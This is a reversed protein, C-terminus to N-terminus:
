KYSLESKKRKKNEYMLNDAEDIYKDIIEGSKPRVIKYGYSMDVLFEQGLEENAAALNEKLRECFADAEVASYGQAYVVYEDGGFRACVEDRLCSKRLVDAATKIAIDGKDHGYKDNIKKLGDLDAFLIMLETGYEISESFKEGTYRAFGFRNYLGTLPDVVYMDDLQVLMSRLHARKRLSELADSINILWTSYLPSSYAFNCNKTITYGMCRDRFHIPSFIYVNSQEPDQEESWPHMQSSPFTDYEVDEGKEYAMIVKLTEPYGRTIYDDSFTKVAFGESVTRLNDVLASDLCMYFGEADLEQVYRYLHTRFESYSKIEGLDEIMANCEYLYREYHQVLELYKNRISSLRIVETNHCGCSESIIPVAAFLEKMPTKEKRLICLLKRCSQVGVNHQDRDVTTLRPVANQAEFMNDFGSLAVDEPIRVGNKLFMSRVGLAISDTACIVAQPLAEGEEDRRRLMERADDEGAFQTFPGKFIRREEVPINHETLVDVYAALREQSDTNFDMGSIYNIKDFKHHVVFHEVIARMAEYNQIGVHYFGDLSTDVSVAPVGVKRVREIIENFMANGLILNAFLIVGDFAAYDILNYINYEGINHKIKEDPSTQANFIYVDANARKAEEVIGDLTQQAYEVVMSAIIVAIKVKRM